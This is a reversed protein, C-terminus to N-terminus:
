GLAGRRAALLQEIGRKGLEMDYAKLDSPFRRALTGERRESGFCDATLFVGTIPSFGFALVSLAMFILKSLQGTSAPGKHAAFLVFALGIAAVAARGRLRHTQPRRAAVRMEHELIPLLTM